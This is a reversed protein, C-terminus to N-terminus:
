WEERCPRATGRWRVKQPDPRVPVPFANPGSQSSSELDRRHPFHNLSAVPKGTAQKAVVPAKAPKVAKAKPEAAPRPMVDSAGAAPQAAPKKTKEPM